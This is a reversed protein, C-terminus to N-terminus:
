RAEWGCVACYRNRKDEPHWSARGCTPCVYPEAGKEAALAKTFAQPLTSQDWLWWLPPPIAGPDGNGRALIIQRRREWSADWDGPDDEIDLLVAEICAHLSAYTM